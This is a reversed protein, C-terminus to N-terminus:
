KTTGTCITGSYKEAAAEYAGYANQYRRQSPVWGMYEL